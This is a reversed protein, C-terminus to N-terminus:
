DGEREPSDLRFFNSPQVDAKQEQFLFVLQREELPRFWEDRPIEQLNKGGYGPCRRACPPLM